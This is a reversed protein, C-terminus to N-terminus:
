VVSKRDRRHYRFHFLLRNLIRSIPIVNPLLLAVSKVIDTFFNGHICGHFEGWAALLILYYVVIVTAGLPSTKVWVLCEEMLNPDFLKASSVLATLLLLPSFIFLLFVTLFWTLTSSAVSEASSLRLVPRAEHPDCQHTQAYTKVPAALVDLIPIEGFILMNFILLLFGFMGM